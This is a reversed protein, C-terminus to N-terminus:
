ECLFSTSYVKWNKGNQIEEDFVIGNAGKKAELNRAHNRALEVSGEDNEGVVKGVVDCQLGRRNPYVKVNRAEPSLEEKSTGACGSILVMAAICALKKMM